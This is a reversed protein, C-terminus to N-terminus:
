ESVDVGSGSILCRKPIPSEDSYRNIWCYPPLSRPRVGRAVADVGAAAAARAGDLWFSDRREGAGARREGAGAGPRRARAAIVRRLTGDTAWDELLIENRTLKTAVRVTIAEVMRSAIRWLSANLAVSIVSTTRRSQPRVPHLPPASARSRWQGLDPDPRDGGQDVLQHFGLLLKLQSPHERAPHPARYSTIAM